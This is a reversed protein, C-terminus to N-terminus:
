SGASVRMEGAIHKELAHFGDMLQAKDITASVAM